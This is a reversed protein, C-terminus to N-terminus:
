SSVRNEVNTPYPNIDGSVAAAEFCLARISRCFSITLCNIGQVGVSNSLLSFLCCSRRSLQYWVGRRRVGSDTTLINMM